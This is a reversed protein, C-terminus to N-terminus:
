LVTSIMFGSYVFATIISIFPKAKNDKLLISSIVYAIACLAPVWAVIGNIFINCVIIFLAVVYYVIAWDEFWSSLKVLRIKTKYVDSVKQACTLLVGIVSLIPGAFLMLFVIILCLGYVLGYQIATIMENSIQFM